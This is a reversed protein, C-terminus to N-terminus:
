LVDAEVRGTVGVLYLDFVEGFSIKSIGLIDVDRVAGVVGMWSHLSGRSRGDVQGGM